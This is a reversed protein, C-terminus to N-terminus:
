KKELLYKLRRLDKRNANKMAFEMVAAFIKAFGSPTGRNRLIMKTEKDSIKKWLYITEMPFPGNATSMVLKSTPSFETIKYTYVLTKGLFVAMFEVESGVTLPKPTKWIVSKINAYWKTANDPDSTFTSVAEIPCNIIIETSVDVPRM